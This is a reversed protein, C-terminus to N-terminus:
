VPQVTKSICGAGRVPVAVRQKYREIFMMSVVICGAGRVPVAVELGSDPHRHGTSAAREVTAGKGTELRKADAFRSAEEFGARKKRWRRRKAAKGRVPVAVRDTCRRLVQDQLSAAREVTAGNGTEPRKADAFRPAEEFGARKKRWQRRKAAKGRVPVAVRRLKESRQSMISAAREM